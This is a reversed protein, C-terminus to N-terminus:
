ARVEVLQPVRPFYRRVISATREGSGLLAYEVVGAAYRAAREGRHGPYAAAEMAYIAAHAIYGTTHDCAVADRARAWAAYAEDRTAEGFAVRRAVELGRRFAAEESPTWLHAGLEAIDCAARIMRGRVDSDIMRIGRAILRLMHAGECSADWAEQPTSHGRLWDLSVDGLTARVNRRYWVMQKTTM